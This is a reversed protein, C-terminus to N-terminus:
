RTPGGATRVVALAFLRMGHRDGVAYATVLAALLIHPPPLQRASRSAAHVATDETPRRVPYRTAM